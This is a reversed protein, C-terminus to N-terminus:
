LVTEHARLHTYSVSYESHSELGDLKGFRHIFYGLARQLDDYNHMNPVWYYETLANKLDPHLNDYPEDALGLVNAGLNRLHVCFQYYNPPFHPSLFVFNM